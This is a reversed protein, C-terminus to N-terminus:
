VGSNGAQFDTGRAPEVFAAVKPLFLELFDLFFTTLVEKFLRDHDTTAM